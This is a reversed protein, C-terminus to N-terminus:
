GLKFKHRYGVIIKIAPKVKEYCVYTFPLYPAVFNKIEKQTMGRGTKKKLEKEQKNRWSRHLRSSKAKMMILSDFYKWIPQYDNTFKFVVQHHKLSPDIKKVAIRNRNCIRLFEESSVVPMGLCWGEFLIFDQRGKVKVTRKSIDGHANVGLSKDFIPLNVNQGAKLKKLVSKLLAIRHTGPMGRSIQYYPNHPYKKRLQHRAKDSTYFDDLSFSQVKYGLQTLSKNILKATATKGTGQGGQIGVIITKGTQQSELIKQVVPIIVTEIKKKSFISRDALRLVLRNLNNGQIEKM